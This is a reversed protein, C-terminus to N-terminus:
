DLKLKVNRYQSYHWMFFPFGVSMLTLMGFVSWVKSNDQITVRFEDRTM